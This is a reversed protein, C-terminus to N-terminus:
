PGPSTRADHHEYTAESAAPTLTSVAHSSSDLEAKVETAPMPTSQMEPIQSQRNPAYYGYTSDHSSQLPSSYSTPPAQPQLQAQQPPQVYQFAVPQGMHPAMYYMTPQM